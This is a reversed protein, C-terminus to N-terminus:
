SPEEDDSIDPVDFPPPGGHRPTLSGAAPPTPLEVWIASMSADDIVLDAVAPSPGDELLRLECTAGGVQCRYTEGPHLRGQALADALTMSM